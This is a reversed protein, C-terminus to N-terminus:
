HATAGAPRELTATWGSECHPEAPLLELIRSGEQCAALLSRQLAAANPASVHHRTQREFRESLTQKLKQASAFDTLVADPNYKLHQRARSLLAICNAMATDLAQANGLCMAATLAANTDAVRSGDRFSGASLSQHLAGDSGALAARALAMALMHPLHSIHAVARDHADSDLLATRAGLSLVWRLVDLTTEASARGDNSHLVVWNCGQLLQADAAAYSPHETGTMPHTGLVEMGAPPRALARRLPLSGSGVDILVRQRPSSLAGHTIAPTLLEYRDLPVALVILDSDQVLETASARVDIGDARAAACTDPDIDFGLVRAHGVALLAKAISGGIQGIGIIGVRPFNVNHGQTM